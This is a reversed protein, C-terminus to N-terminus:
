KRALKALLKKKEEAKEVENALKTINAQLVSLESSLQTIEYELDNYKKQFAASANGKWWIEVNNIERRMVTKKRKIDCNASYVRRSLSKIEYVTPM